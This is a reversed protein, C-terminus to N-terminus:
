KFIEFSKKFPFDVNVRPALTLCNRYNDLTVSCWSLFMQGVKWTDSIVLNGWKLAPRTSINWPFPSAFLFDCEMRVSSGSGNVCPSGPCINKRRKKWTYESYVLFHLHRLPDSRNHIDREPKRCSMRSGNGPYIAATLWRIRGRPVKPEWAKVARGCISPFRFSLFKFNFFLNSSITSLFGRLSVLFEEVVFSPLELSELCDAWVGDM